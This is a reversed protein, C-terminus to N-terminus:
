MPHQIKGTRAAPSPPVPAASPRASVSTAGSQVSRPASTFRDRHPVPGIEARFEVSRSSPPPTTWRSYDITDAISNSEDITTSLLIAHKLGILDDGARAVGVADRRVDVGRDDLDEGSRAAASLGGDEVEDGLLDVLVVRSGLDDAEVEFGGDAQRDAGGLLQEVVEGGPRGVARRAGVEEEVLDLLDRAPFSDDVRQAHVPVAVDVERPGAGPHEGTVEGGVEGAPVHRDMHLWEGEGLVPGQAEEIGGGRALRRRRVLLEELVVEGESAERAQPVEVAPPLRGEGIEAADVVRGEHAVHNLVVLDPVHVEEVANDGVAQRINPARERRAREAPEQATLTAGDTNIGHEVVERVAGLGEQEPADRAM